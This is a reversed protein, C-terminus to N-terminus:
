GITDQIWGGYFSTSAFFSKDGTCPQDDVVSVANTVAILVGDLVMPGGSDGSCVNSNTLEPNACVQNEGCNDRGWLKLNTTKLVGSGEGTETVGWGYVTAEKGNYDIDDEYQVPVPDIGDANHELKLLAVDDDNSDANFLVIETVPIIQGNFFNVEGVSVWFADSALDNNDNIVCHRATLVYNPSILSGGCNSGISTGQDNSEYSTVIRSVWPTNEADVGNIIRNKFVGTFKHHNLKFLRQKTPSSCTLSICYLALLIWRFMNFSNFSEFVIISKQIKM